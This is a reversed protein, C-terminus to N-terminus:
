YLDDTVRLPHGEFVPVPQQFAARRWEILGAHIVACFTRPRILVVASQAAHAATVASELIARANM